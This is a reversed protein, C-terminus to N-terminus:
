NELQVVTRRDLGFDSRCMYKQVCDLQPALWNLAHERSKSTAIHTVSVPTAEGLRRIADSPWCAPTSLSNPVPSSDDTTPYWISSQPASMRPNSGLLIWCISSASARLPM